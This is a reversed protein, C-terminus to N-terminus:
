ADLHNHQKRKRASVRVGAIIVLVYFVGIVMAYQHEAELLEEVLPM